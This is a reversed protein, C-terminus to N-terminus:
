FLQLLVESYYITSLLYYSDLHLPNLKIGSLCLREAKEVEGLNLCSVAAVFRTWMYLAESPTNSALRLAIEAERLAPEYYKKGLLSVSLYHHNRPDEPTRLIEEELLTSTRQFKEDDRVQSM